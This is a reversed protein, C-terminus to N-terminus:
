RRLARATPGNFVIGDDVSDIVPMVGTEKYWGLV